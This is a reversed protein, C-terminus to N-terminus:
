SFGKDWYIDWVNDLINKYVPNKNEINTSSVGGAIKEYEISGKSAMIIIRPMWM